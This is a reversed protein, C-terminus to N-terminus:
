KQESKPAKTTDGFDGIGYHPMIIDNATGHPPICTDGSNGGGPIIYGGISRCAEIRKLRAEQDFQCSRMSLAGITLVTATVVLAGYRIWLGDTNMNQQQIREWYEQRQKKNM